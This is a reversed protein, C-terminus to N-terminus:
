QYTFADDFSYSTGDPNNIVIRVGGVSGAPTTVQLTSTDVFTTPVLVGGITVTAGSQFGSGRITVPTGGSTSGIAPTLYGISLPPSPLQIITLGKNTILFLRNGTEDFDMPMQALNAIQEGLMIQGLGTGLNTDTIEIGNSQVYASGQLVPTYLISGAANMKEGATDPFALLATFFEPLQAQMHQIMQTDLRVYDSAIWYGDGSISSGIAHRGQIFTDTSANWLYGGCYDGTLWVASGTNTRSFNNGEIDLGPSPLDTRMRLTLTSLDLEFLQTGGCGSFTGSIGDVFAKGTSTAVIDAVGPANKINVPIPVAVNSSPNDPDIVAVSPDSFNAALLKSNDPTLALGKMQRAGTVSPPVIPSLFQSSDANFVDIHDGASVYVRHRKPDYLVYTLTDASSYDSIPVYTFAKPLTTTGSDSTVTVDAPGSPGPPITVLIEDIGFFPYALNITSYNFNIYESARTVTAAQGGITVSTNGSKGLLGHGILAISAGGQVSGINGGLYFVKVGYSFAQPTFAFWGDPLVAKVNVLGATSSPPATVSVLPGQLQINTGRANGFWVDPAVDYAVQGLGTALPTNLAAENLNIQGCPPGIPLSLLNQFNTSDDIALGETFAGYILGSNDAALPVAQSNAWCPGQFAPAVGVVSYSSTDFTLIVPYTPGTLSLSLTMTAYLKSGDPSYIMGWFVGGLPPTALTKLDADVIAFGNAGVIAFQEAIPSAAVGLVQGVPSQGSATFSNTASDYVAMNLDSGYDVVLIKAGDGTGVLQNIWPGIGPPSLPSFTGANPDWQELSYSPPLSFNTMGVLTTGNNASALLAPFPSVTPSQITVNTRQVVQHSTTDISVIQQMNSGVILDKGDLSMAMGTPSPAPISSTIQHNSPSVVDVRNWNTNSVYILNHVSDYVAAAPTGDERILDTRISPLSGVPPTVNLTLQGSAQVGDSTRTATVTVPAYNALSTPSATFTLTTAPQTAVFPNAGFTAQVGSPLGSVSFQVEFNDNGNGTLGLGLGIAASGGQQFSLENGNLFLSFTALTQTQIQLSINASHQQVGSSAQLTLTFNGQAATTPISITLNQSGPSMSFPSSPSITVGAPLGTVSVSVTGVFGNVALVTVTTLLVGGPTVTASNPSASLTFDPKPAPGSGGSSGGGCGTTGAALTCAIAIYALRILCSPM